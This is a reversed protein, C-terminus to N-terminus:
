AVRAICPLAAAVPVESLQGSPPTAVYSYDTTSNAGAAFGERPNNDIPLNLSFYVAPHFTGFEPSPVTFTAAFTNTTAGILDVNSITGLGQTFGPNLNAIESVTV